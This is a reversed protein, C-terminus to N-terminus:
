YTHEIENANIIGDMHMKIRANCKFIQCKSCRWATEGKKIEDQQAFFEYNEYIVTM